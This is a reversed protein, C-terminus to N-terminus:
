STAIARSRPPKLRAAESRKGGPFMREGFRIDGWALFTADTTEIGCTLRSNIATRVEEALQSCRDLEARDFPDRGRRAAKPSSGYPQIGWRSKMALIQATAACKVQQHPGSFPHITM